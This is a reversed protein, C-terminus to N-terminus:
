LLIVFLLYGIVLILTVFGTFFQTLTFAMLYIFIKGPTLFLEIFSVVVNPIASHVVELYQQLIAFQLHSGNKSFHNTNPTFHIM